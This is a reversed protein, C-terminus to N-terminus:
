YLPTKEKHNLKPLTLALRMGRGWVKVDHLERGASILKRTVAFATQAAAFASVPDIM